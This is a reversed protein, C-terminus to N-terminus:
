EILIEKHVRGSVLMALVDVTYYKVVRSKGSILPNGKSFWWKPPLDTTNETAIIQGSGDVTHSGFPNFVQNKVLGLEPEKDIDSSLTDIM